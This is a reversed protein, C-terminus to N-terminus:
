VMAGESLMEWTDEERERRECREWRWREFSSSSVFDEALARLLCEEEEELCEEREWLDFPEEYWLECYWVASSSKRLLTALSALSALVIRGWPWEEEDDDDDWWLSLADLALDLLFSLAVSYSSINSLTCYPLPFTGTLPM